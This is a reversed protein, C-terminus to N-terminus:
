PSLAVLIAVADSGALLAIPEGGCRDARLTEGAQLRIGGADLTGEVLHVIATDRVREEVREGPALRLVRLRGEVAGRAVMLNLDRVPGGLLECEV